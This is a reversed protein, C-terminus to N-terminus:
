PGEVRGRVVLCGVGFWQGFPALAVDWGRGAREPQSVYDIASMQDLFAVVRTWGFTYALWVSQDETM